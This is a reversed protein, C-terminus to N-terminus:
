RSFECISSTSNFYHVSIVPLLVYLNIIITGEELNLTKADQPRRFIQAKQGSCSKCKSQLKSVPVIGKLTLKDSISCQLKMSESGESPMVDFQNKRGHSKAYFKGGFIKHALVRALLQLQRTDATGIVGNTGVPGMFLPTALYNYEANM